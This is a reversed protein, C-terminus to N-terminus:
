LAVIIVAIGMVLCYAAFLYFRESMVFRRVARIAMYGVIAAVLTAVLSSGDLVVGPAKFMEVATAGAIAPISLLFSFRFVKQKDAGSFLGSSITSGSRSVGPILALAQFLGMVLAVALSIEGKGRRLRSLLLIAATAIFGLGVALLNSFFSEFAELFLLAALAAPISGVFLLLLTKFDPNGTDFTFFAKAIALIDRWFFAVVSALTGLHLLLDFAIPVDLGLLQQIVALHGSSSIPLWETLGQVLALLLAWALEM